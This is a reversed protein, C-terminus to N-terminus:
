DLTQFVLSKWLCWWLQRLPHELLMSGAMKSSSTHTKLSLVTSQTLRYLIAGKLGANAVGVSEVPVALAAETPAGVAHFSGDKSEIHADNCVACM